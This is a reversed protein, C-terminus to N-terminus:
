NINLTPLFVFSRFSRSQLLVSVTMDIYLTCSFESFSNNVEDNIEQVSTLSHTEM